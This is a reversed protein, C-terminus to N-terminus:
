TRIKAKFKPQYGKTLDNIEIIISHIRATIAQEKQLWYDYAANERLDKNDQAILGKKLIVKDREQRLKSLQARLEEIKDKQTMATIIVYASNPNM